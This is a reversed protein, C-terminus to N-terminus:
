NKWYFIMFSDRDIQAEEGNESLYFDGELQELRYAHDKLVIEDLILTNSNMDMVTMMQLSDRGDDNFLPYYINRKRSPSFVVLKALSQVSSNSVWPVRHFGIRRHPNTRLSDNSRRQFHDWTVTPSLHVRVM